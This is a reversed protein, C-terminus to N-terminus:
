EYNNKNLNNILYTIWKNYTWRKGTTKDIPHEGVKRIRMPKLKMINLKIAL